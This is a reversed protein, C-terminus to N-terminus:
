GAGPVSGDGGRLSNESEFPRVGRGDVLSADAARARPTTTRDGPRSPPGRSARSHQEFDGGKSGPRADLKAPAPSVVRRPSLDRSRASLMSDGAISSVCGGVRAREAAERIAM